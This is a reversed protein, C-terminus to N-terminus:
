NKSLFIQAGFVRLSIAQSLEVMEVAEPCLFEVLMRWLSIRGGFQRLFHRRHMAVHLHFSVNSSIYFYASTYSNVCCRLGLRPCRYMLVANQCPGFFDLWRASRGFRQSLYDPAGGLLNLSWSYARKVAQLLECVDTGSFEVHLQLHNFFRHPRLRPQRSGRLFCPYRTVAGYSPFADARPFLVVKVMLVTRLRVLTKCKGLFKWMHNSGEITEFGALVHLTESAHVPVAM